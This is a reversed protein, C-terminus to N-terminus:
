ATQMSDHVRLALDFAMRMHDRYPMLWRDRLRQEQWCGNPALLPTFDLRLFRKGQHLREELRAGGCRLGHLLGYFGFAQEPQVQHAVKKDMSWAASLAAVWFRHDDALDPRPDFRHRDDAAIPPATPNAQPKDTGVKKTASLSSNAM